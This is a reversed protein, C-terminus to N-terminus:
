RGNGNPQPRPKPMGAGPKTTGGRPIWFDDEDEVEDEECEPFASCPPPHQETDANRGRADEPTSIEAPIGSPLRDSAFKDFYGAASDSDRMAAPSTEASSAASDKTPTASALPVLLLNTSPISALEKSTEHLRPRDEPGVTKSAPSDSPDYAM